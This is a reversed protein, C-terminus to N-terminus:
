KGVWKKYFKAISDNPIEINLDTAAYVHDWPGDKEHSLDILQGASWSGFKKYVIDIASIAKCLTESDQEASLLEWEKIGFSSPSLGGPGFIKLDFYLPELVPGYKWAQFNTDVLPLDHAALMLAHGFFILKQLKLNSVTTGDGEAKILFAKAVARYRFGNM